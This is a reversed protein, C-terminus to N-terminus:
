ARAARTRKWTWARRSLVILAALVLLPDFLYDWLNTSELAQLRWAALAVVLALATIRWGTLWAALAAVGVALPLVLAGGYGWAYPDVSGIGLAFPYFLVVPLAALAPLWRRECDAFPSKGRIRGIALAALLSLSSISLGAFLGRLADLASTGAFVPACLAAALIAVLAATQWRRLRAVAALNSLTLWLLLTWGCLDLAGAIM